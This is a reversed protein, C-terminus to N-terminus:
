KFVIIKSLDLLEIAKQQVPEEFIHFPIASSDSLGTEAENMAQEADMSSNLGYRLCGWYLVKEILKKAELLAQHAEFHKAKKLAASKLIGATALEKSEKFSMFSGLVGILTSILYGTEAISHSEQIISGVGMLIAFLIQGFGRNRANLSLYAAAVCVAVQCKSFQGIKLARQENM